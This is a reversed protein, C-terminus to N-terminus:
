TPWGTGTIRRGPHQQPVLAVDYGLAHAIRFAAQFSPVFAGWRMNSIHPRTLDSVDALETATMGITAQMSRLAPAWDAPEALRIM